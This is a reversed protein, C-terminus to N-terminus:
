CSLEPALRIMGTGTSLLEPSAGAKTSHCASGALSRSARMAVFASARHLVGRSASGGMRPRGVRLQALTRITSALLLPSGSSAESHRRGTSKAMRDMFSPTLSYPKSSLSRIPRPSTTGQQNNDPIFSVALSGTLRGGLEHVMSKPLTWVVGQMVGGHERNGFTVKTASWEFGKVEPVSGLKIQAIGDLVKASNDAVGGAVLGAAGATSALKSAGEVVPAIPQRDEAAKALFSQEHAVPSMYKVTAGLEKVRWGGGLPFYMYIRGAPDALREWLDRHHTVRELLGSHHEPHGPHGITWWYEYVPASSATHAEDDAGGSPVVEAYTVDVLPRTEGFLEM